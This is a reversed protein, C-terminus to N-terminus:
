VGSGVTAATDPVGAHFEVSGATLEMFAEELSARVMTLEHLRIGQEFAIDGIAEATMGRIEIAGDADTATAAGEATVAKILDEAMPTRVRVAAGSSRAGCPELTVYATAGRALERAQGLALEEAHPRGGPQTSGRGLVRGDRVIVCGVSPNPWTAGLNRGALALAARMHLADDM